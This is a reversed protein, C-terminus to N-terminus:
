WSLQREADHFALYLQWAAGLNEVKALVTNEGQKLHVEFVNEQPRAKRGGEATGSWAFIEQGNLWLKVGDNSGLGLQVTMDRPASLTCRAYAVVNDTEGFCPLLDLCGSLAAQAPQWRVQAAEGTEPPYARLFGPAVQGNLQGDWDLPYPGTVEWTTIFRWPDNADPAQFLGHVNHLGYPNELYRRLGAPVRPARSQAMEMLTDLTRRCERLSDRWAAFAQGFDQNVVAASCRHVSRTADRVETPKYLHDVGLQWAVGSVKRAQAAAAPVILPAMDRPIEPVNERLTQLLGEDRSLLLFHALEFKPLTM